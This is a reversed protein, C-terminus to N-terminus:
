REITLPCLRVSSITIAAMSGLCDYYCIKNMGSIQEGKLFCTMAYAYNPNLNLASPTREVNSTWNTLFFLSAYGLILITIALILKKIMLKGGHLDTLM